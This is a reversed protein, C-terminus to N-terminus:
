RRNRPGAALVERVSRRYGEAMAAALTNVTLAKAAQELAQRYADQYIPLRAVGHTESLAQACGWLQGAWGAEGLGVAVGGLGELAPVIGGVYDAASACAVSEEYLQGAERLAGVRARSHAWYGLAEATSARDGLARQVPLYEQALVQARREDGEHSLMEALAVAVYAEGQRQGVAGILALSEEALALAAAIDDGQGFRARALFALVHATRQRDGLGRFVELGAELYVRAELTKGQTLAVRGLRSLTNARGWSDGAAAFRDHAEQLLERAQAFRNQAWAVTGSLYLSEAVHRTDGLARLLALSERAREAAAAVNGSYFVLEGMAHLALARLEAACDPAVALARTLYGLGVGLHGRLYWFWALAICLRLGAAADETAGTSEAREILFATALQLNAQDQDLVALWHLQDNSRLHPAAREAQALYYGAHAGRARTLEGAHALRELGYERITQLMELRLDGTDVTSRRILSQDLLTSATEWVSGAEGLTRSVAAAAELTFGGAFVSLRRFLRQEAPGLLDYSWAITSRLTQQRAPLDRPGRTLLDLLPTFRSLLGALPLLRTRAAALEIALPLGDLRDCIEALLQASQANLEVPAGAARARELFLQVAPYGAVAAPDTMYPPAPRVLPPMDLISEGALRLVARSTVLLKPGPAAALLEALFLAAPLLHEFNDLVLL